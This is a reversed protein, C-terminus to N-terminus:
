DIDMDFDDDTKEISFKKHKDLFSRYRNYVEDTAKKGNILLEGDRHKLTYGEKRNILGDKELGDVFQKYERLEVKAKELEERAKSMEKELRPQLDKMEEQVKKMEEDLKKLDIEKIKQMELKMNDWNVKALSEQVEQQIKAADVEKLATAIEDKIKNFDVKSISAEIERQIKEMDVERLAKEIDLRIKEADVKQLATALETRIRDFDVNMEASELEELVEDLDRAKKDSIKKQQKPTTDASAQQYVGQGHQQGWSVLGISLVLASFALLLPGNKRIMTQMCDSKSNFTKNEVFYKTGFIRSFEYKM